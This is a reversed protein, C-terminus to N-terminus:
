RISKIMNYLQAQQAADANYEAAISEIDSSDATSLPKYDFAMFSLTVESVIDNVSTVLGSDIFEIGRILLGAGGLARGKEATDGEANTTTGQEIYGGMESAYYIALDFPPLLTPMISNFQDLQYVSGVGVYERDMSWAHGPRRQGRLESYQQMLTALPHENIVTLIMSGAITRISKSHGSIGRHGLRRAQGKAEHVSVSITHMSRLHQINDPATPFWTYVDADAGSFSYEYKNPTTVKTYPRPELGASYGAPYEIDATDPGVSFNNKLLDNNYIPM